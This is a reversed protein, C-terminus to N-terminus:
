SSGRGWILGHIVTGNSSLILELSYREQLGEHLGQLVEMTEKHFTVEAEIFSALASIQEVQLMYYIILSQEIVM